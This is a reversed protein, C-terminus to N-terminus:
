HMRYYKIDSTFVINVRYIADHEECEDFQYSKGGILADIADQHSVAEIYDLHMWFSPSVKNEIWKSVNYKKLSSM